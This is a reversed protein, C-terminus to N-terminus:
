FHTSVHLGVFNGGEHHGTHAGLSKQPGARGYPAQSPVGQMRQGILPVCATTQDPEFLHSASMPGRLLRLLGVGQEVEHM